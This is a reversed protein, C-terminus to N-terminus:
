QSEGPQLAVTVGYNSQIATAIQTVSLGGAVWFSLFIAITDHMESSQPPSTVCLAARTRLVEIERSLERGDIFQWLKVRAAVLAREGLAGKLFHDAVVVAAQAPLPLEQTVRSLADVMLQQAPLAELPDDLDVVADIADFLFDATNM